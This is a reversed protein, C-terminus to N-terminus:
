QVDRAEPELRTHWINGHRQTVLCRRRGTTRAQGQARLGQAADAAQTKHMGTMHAYEAATHGPCKRIWNAITERNTM